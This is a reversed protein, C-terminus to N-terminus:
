CCLSSPTKSKKSSNTRSFASRTRTRRGILSTTFSAEGEKNSSIPIPASDGALLQARTLYFHAVQDIGAVISGVTAANAYVSETLAVARLSSTASREEQALMMGSMAGVFVALADPHVSASDVAAPLASMVAEGEVERLLRFLAGYSCSLLPLEPGILTLAESAGVRELAAISDRLSVDAEADTHYWADATSSRLIRMVDLLRAALPAEHPHDVTLSGLDHEALVPDNRCAHWLARLVIPQPDDPQDASLRDIHERAERWRGYAALLRVLFMRATRHGPALEIVSQFEQLARSSHTALVGLMFHRDSDELPQGLAERAHRLAAESETWSHLELEVLTALAHGRRAGLSGDALLAEVAGRAGERRGLALLARARRALLDRPDVHGEREVLALEDLASQWLGQKARAEALAYRSMAQERSAALVQREKDLWLTIFVAAGLVLATVTAAALRNRRVWKSFEVWPGTRHAQVVRDELYAQLDEAMARMDPYRHEPDRAMAKECISVLESPTAPALEEVRLASGALVAAIIEVPRASKGPRLYPAHGVLLEYLMAGVAYVDTRPGIREGDAGAQEPAMYPATGPRMDRMTALPSEPDSEIRRQRETQVRTPARIESPANRSDERM